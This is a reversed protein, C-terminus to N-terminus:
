MEKTLILCQERMCDGFLYPQNTVVYVRQFKKADPNEILASLFGVSEGPQMWRDPFIFFHPGVGIPERALVKEIKSMGFDLTYEWRPDRPGPSDVRGSVICLYDFPHEWDARRKYDKFLDEIWQFPHSVTTTGSRKIVPKKSTAM